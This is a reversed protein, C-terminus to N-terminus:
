KRDGAEGIANRLLDEIAQDLKKSLHEQREVDLLWTMKIGPSPHICKCGDGDSIGIQCFPLLAVGELEAKITKIATERDDVAFTLVCDNLPGRHDSPLVEEIGDRLLALQLLRWLLKSGTWNDAPFIVKGASMTPNGIHVAIVHTALDETNM